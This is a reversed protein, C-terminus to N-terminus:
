IPKTPYTKDPKQQFHGNPSPKDKNSIKALEIQFRQAQALVQKEKRGDAKGPKSTTKEFDVVM